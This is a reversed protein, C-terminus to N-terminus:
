PSIDNFFLFTIIKSIKYIKIHKHLKFWKLFFYIIILNYLYKAVLYFTRDIYIVIIMSHYVNKHKQLYEFLKIYLCLDHM